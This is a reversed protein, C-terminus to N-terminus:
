LQERQSHQARARHGRRLPSLARGRGRAGSLLIDHLPLDLTLCFRMLLGHVGIELDRILPSTLFLARYLTPFLTALLPTLAALLVRFDLTIVLLAGQPVPPPPTWHAERGSDVLGSPLECAAGSFGLCARGGGSFQVRVIDGATVHEGCVDHRQCRRGVTGSSVGYVEVKM